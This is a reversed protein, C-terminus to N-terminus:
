DFSSKSNLLVFNILMVFCRAISKSMPTKIKRASTVVTHQFQKKNQKISIFM